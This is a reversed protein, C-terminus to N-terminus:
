IASIGHRLLQLGRNLMDEFARNWCVVYHGSGAKRTKFKPHELGDPLFFTLTSRGMRPAPLRM